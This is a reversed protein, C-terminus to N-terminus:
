CLPNRCFGVFFAWGLKNSGATYKASLAGSGLPAYEKAFAGKYFFGERAHNRIQDFVHRAPNENGLTPSQPASVTPHPDPFFFVLLCLSNQRSVGQNTVWRDRPCTGDTGDDTGGTGRVNQGKFTFPWMFRGLRGPHEQSTGFKNGPREWPM